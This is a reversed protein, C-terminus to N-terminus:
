PPDMQGGPRELAGEFARKGRKKMEFDNMLYMWDAPHNLQYSYLLREGFIKELLHIFEEDVKTGGWPGGTVKYIEKLAGNPLLEHM